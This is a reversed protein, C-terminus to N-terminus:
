STGWSNKVIWNAGVDDYGVILVTTLGRCVGSTHVYIGGPYSDFDNYVTFMVIIPGESVLVQKWAAPDFAVAHRRDDHPARSRQHQM